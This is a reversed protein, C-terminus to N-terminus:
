QKVWGASCCLLGAMGCGQGQRVQWGRLLTAVGRLAAICQQMSGEVQVVEDPNAEDQQLGEAPLVKIAAGTEARLQTVTQGKKGLVVGVQLLMYTKALSSPTAGTVEAPKM